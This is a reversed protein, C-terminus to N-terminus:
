PEWKYLKYNEPVVKFFMPSYDSSYKTNLADVIINAFNESIDKAILIDSVTDREFNDTQIIKM